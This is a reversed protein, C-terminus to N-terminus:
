DNGTPSAHMHFTVEHGHERTGNHGMNDAMSGVIHSNSGIDFVVM